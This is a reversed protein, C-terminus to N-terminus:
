FKKPPMKVSDGHKLLLQVVVDSQSSNERSAADALITRAEQTLWLSVTKAVKNPFFTKRGAGERAGGRREISRRKGKKQAM